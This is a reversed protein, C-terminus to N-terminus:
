PVSNDKSCLLLQPPIDKRVGVIVRIPHSGVVWQDHAALAIWQAM